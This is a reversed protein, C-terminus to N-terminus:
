PHFTPRINKLSRMALWGAIVGVAGEVTPTGDAVLASFERANYGEAYMKRIREREGDDLVREGRQTLAVELPPALTVVVLEAGRKRAAEDLVAFDQDRLPYAVVLREDAAEIVRALREVAAVIMEEFPLEHADHDDGEIFRVGLRAALARGVTSRGSNISGNICIVIM